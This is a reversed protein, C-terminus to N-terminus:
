FFTEIGSAAVLPTRYFVSNKFIKCYECSDGNLLGTPKLVQLKREAVKRHAESVGVCAKKQSNQLIKLFM